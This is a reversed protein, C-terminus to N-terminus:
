EHVPTMGFAFFLAFLMPIIAGLLLCLTIRFDIKRDHLAALMFGIAIILIAFSYVLIFIFRRRTLWRSHGTYELAIALIFPPNFAVTAIRLHLLLIKLELNTTSIELAQNLTWLTVLGM